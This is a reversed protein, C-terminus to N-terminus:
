LEFYIKVDGSFMSSFVQFADRDTVQTMELHGMQKLLEVALHTASATVSSSLFLKRHNAKAYTLFDNFTNSPSRPEVTV